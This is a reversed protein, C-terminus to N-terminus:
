DIAQARSRLADPITLGLAKATKGNVILEVKVSQDFSLDGPKEGRLIRAVYLGAHQFGEAYSEGYSMLGGAAPFARQIFIAPVKHRLTLAALHAITEDDDFFPHAAIDLAGIKQAVLASFAADVDRRSDVKFVVLQRGLTQAAAAVTATQEETVANSFQAGTRLYAIARAQPAMEGLLRVREGAHQGPFIVGTVNGGPRDLRPAFGLEVPDSGFALVIPITSTAAKAAAAAASGGGVVIVAPRRAILENALAPLRSFQNDAWLCEITINKGDVFGADRLGQTIGAVAGADGQPKNGHLFGILPIAPQQARAALPFSFAM